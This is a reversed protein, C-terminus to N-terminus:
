QVTQTGTVVGNEENIIASDMFEQSAYYINGDITAQVVQFGNAEVYVDGVFTGGQYRMNESRVILKPATITYSATIKRDADQEYPAIKRAIVDRNTFEGEVVLDETLTIDALTAVLWIGDAKLGAQLAEGTTVLSATTVVDAEAGGVLSITGTVKADKEEDFIASDMFEQSAFYVNGEITAQTLHFGNAEVYVDGVFTGGQYRMNESRVILKPATITYSATINRDADQEYPAIKRAIAERHIFEGEVVLDETLTIDNLTAVLWIGDAKLGAQLAEGTTVLSATAVVDAETEPTETAAPTQTTPTEEKACAALVTVLLMLSLIIVMLKKMKM